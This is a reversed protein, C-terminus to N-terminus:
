NRRGLMMYVYYLLQALSALAAVTYTMAAWFLADKAQDQGMSGTQGSANIWALARKSADFEVPLTVFAFLTTIGLAVVVLGLIMPNGTFMAGMVSIMMIPGMMRSALGVAPVLKSRMTLFAYSKAHQIAHGCEHAAVAAAAVNRQNYVAESLNVTKDGPNYHDTLRGPTSIIQVDNLGNESLMREAIERGSMEIPVQSYQAFKSKLRKGVLWSALTSIGIIVWYSM